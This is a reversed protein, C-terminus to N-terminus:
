GHSSATRLHGRAIEYGPIHLRKIMEVVEHVPFEGESLFSLLYMLGDPGFFDCLPLGGVIEQAGNLDVEKLHCGLSRSADDLACDHVLRLDRCRRGGDTAAYSIWEVWGEDARQIREGCADCIWYSEMPTGTM